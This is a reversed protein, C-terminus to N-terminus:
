AVNGLHQDYKRMFINAVWLAAFADSRSTQALAGAPMNSDTVVRTLYYDHADGEVFPLAAAEQQSLLRIETLNAIGRAMLYAFRERRPFNKSGEVDRQLTRSTNRLLGSFATRTVFLDTIFCEPSMSHPIPFGQDFLEPYGDIRQLIKLYLTENESRQRIRCIELGEQPVPEYRYPESFHLESRRSCSPPPSYRANLIKIRGVDYYYSFRYGKFRKSWLAKL